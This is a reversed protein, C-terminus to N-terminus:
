IVGIVIIAVIGAGLTIMSLKNGFKKKFKENKILKEIACLSGFFVLGGAILAISLGSIGFNFANNFNNAINQPSSVMNAKYALVENTPLRTVIPKSIFCVAATSIIKGKHKDLFKIVCEEDQMLENINFKDNWNVPM